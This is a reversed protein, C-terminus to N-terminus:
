RADYETSADSQDEGSESDEGDFLDGFGIIEEGGHASAAMAAADLLEGTSM